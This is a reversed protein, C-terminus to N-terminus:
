LKDPVQFFSDSREDEARAGQKARVVVDMYYHVDGSKAMRPVAANGGPVATSLTQRSGFSQGNMRFM